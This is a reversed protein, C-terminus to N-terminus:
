PDRAPVETWAAASPAARLLRRPVLRSLRRSGPSGTSLPIPSRGPRGLFVWLWVLAGAGLVAAAAANTVPAVAADSVVVPHRAATAPPVSWEFRQQLPRVGERIIWVTFSLQGPALDASGVDYRGNQDTSSSLFPRTVTVSDGVIVGVQTVRAPVPRRKNIVNVAILNRGPQNPEVSLRVALDNLDVTQAAARQPTPPPDYQAGVAPISAGLFAGFLVVLLAGAAELGLSRLPFRGAGERPARAIRIAHGLGLLAVLGVLGVKILLAIGYQTSLAATVSAVEKGSMLLGSAVTLTLAGAAIPSFRRLMAWAVGGPLHQNGAVVAVIAVLGGGWLSFSLLHAGRVVADTLGPQTSAGVHGSMGLAGALAVALLCARLSNATVISLGSRRANNIVNETPQGRRARLALWAVLLAAGTALLSSIVLRIGFDSGLLLRQLPVRSLGGAGYVALGLMAVEGVVVLVAGSLAVLLARAQARARVATVVDGPLLFLALLLGGVLGALGSFLVWRLLVESGSAAPSASAQSKLVPAVTIGFVISGETDHVDVSDRTKFSLRYSDHGLPPLKVVLRTPYQPDLRLDSDPIQTLRGESDAITAQSAGLMVPSTFDLTVHEPAAYLIGGDPPDSGVFLTHASATVSGAACLWLALAAGLIATRAARLM